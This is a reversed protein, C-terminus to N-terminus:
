RKQQDGDSEEQGGDAEPAGADSGSRDELLLARPGSVAPSGRVFFRLPWAAADGAYDVGIRRSTGIAGTALPDVLLGFRPDDLLDLGSHGRAIALGRCLKGPGALLRPDSAPPPPDAARLLVAEPIGRERTVLNACCHMGYVLFVYLHGGPAYMAEVRATRRGRYSHAAPDDVGLYAEVEVIRAGYLRPGSRRLLWAGLLDRAVEATPRLFFDRAPPTGPPSAELKLLSSPRGAM